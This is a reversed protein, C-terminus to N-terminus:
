DIGTGSDLDVQVPVGAPLELAAEGQLWLEAVYSLRARDRESLAFYPTFTADSSVKRVRGIFADPWGDVTVTFEQGPAIRARVPEPVYVRAFPAPGALLIAVAAGVPPREGLKYPLSDIRGARSARVALENVLVQQRALAARNQAVRARAQDLEERTTGNLLRDLAERAADRDSRATQSLTNARDLEAQSALKREVLAQTRQRSSQAEWLVSESGKVVARAQDIEEQRPGRELEALRAESEGLVARLRQLEAMAKRDDIQLVLTGQEVRQGEDVAVSVIPEAATAVLEIRDWELVGLAQAPLDRHCGTVFLAILSIVSCPLMANVRAGFGAALRLACAFHFGVEPNSWDLRRFQPLRKDRHPPQEINCDTRRSM